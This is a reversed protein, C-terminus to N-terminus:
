NHKYIKPYGGVLGDSLGLIAVSVPIHWDQTCDFSTMFIVILALFVSLVIVIKRAM